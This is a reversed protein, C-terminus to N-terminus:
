PPDLRRRRHLEGGSPRQQLAGDDGVERADRRRTAPDEARGRPVSGAPPLRAGARGPSLPAPDPVHRVRAPVAPRRAAASVRVCDRRAPRRGRHLVRPSHHARGLAASTPPLRDGRRLKEANMVEGELFELVLADHERLAAVVPAGVGTEAAAITNHIENERDIALLGTDKSAIRVVYAGAPTTVKYNTNTLGGSLPEVKGGHLEPVAALVDELAM